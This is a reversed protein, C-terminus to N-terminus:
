RYLVCYNIKTNAFDVGIYFNQHRKKVPKRKRPMRKRYQGLTASKIYGTWNNNLNLIGENTELKYRM